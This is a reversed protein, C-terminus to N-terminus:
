SSFLGRVVVPSLQISTVTRFSFFNSVLARSLWTCYTCLVYMQLGVDHTHLNNHFSNQFEGRGWKSMRLSLCLCSATFLSCLNADLCGVWRCGSVKDITATKFPIVLLDSRMIIQPTLLLFMTFFRSLCKERLDRM